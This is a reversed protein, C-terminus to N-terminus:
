REIRALVAQATTSLGRPDLAGELARAERTQEFLRERAAADLDRWAPHERIRGDPDRPRWASTAQEILVETEGM